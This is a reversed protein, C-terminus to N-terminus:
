SMALARAVTGLSLRVEPKAILLASSTESLPSAANCTTAVESCGNPLGSTIGSSFGSAWSPVGRTVREVSLCSAVKTSGSTRM